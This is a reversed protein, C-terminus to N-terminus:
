AAVIRDRWHPLLQKLQIRDRVPRAHPTLTPSSDIVPMTSAVQKSTLAGPHPLVSALRACALAWSRRACTFRSRVRM